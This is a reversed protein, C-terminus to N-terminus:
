MSWLSGKCVQGKGPLACERAHRSHRTQNIQELPKWPVAAGWPQAKTLRGAGEPTGSVMGQRGAQTSTSTWCSTM